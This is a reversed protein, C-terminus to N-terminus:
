RENEGRLVAGEPHGPCVKDRVKLLNLRWDACDIVLQVDQHVCVCQLETHVLQARSSRQLCFAEAEGQWRTGAGERM